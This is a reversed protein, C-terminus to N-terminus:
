VNLAKPKACVLQVTSIARELFAGECYCLYYQWLRVFQESFGMERVQEVQKFFRDRWDALTRAYDLGIDDINRIVMDSHASMGNALRSISPLCGGPFIYTQIFDVNRVYADYRQDAITIAQIVAHGDDKLLSSVKELYNSLYQHGVAEIMEISVLKDYKGELERYDKLLVTVQENLRAEDVRKRAYEYQQQSITTTTVKCGYNKAAYIAMGGWGTGIEILHDSPKLKLKECTVKLKNAAADDLAQAQESYIASSYMMKSDLFLQYFDNSLDYHAGINKKAQDKTNRRTWHNLVRFPAKLWSFKAEMAELRPLNKAFIQILHTLNDCQWEGRVYAEAAGISGGFMFHRYAIAKKVEITVELEGDGFKRSSDGDLMVIKGGELRELLSFVMKKAMRERFGIKADDESQYLKQSLLQRERM